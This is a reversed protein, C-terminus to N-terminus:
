HDANFGVSSDDYYMSHSNSLREYKAKWENVIECLSRSLSVSYELFQEPTMIAHFERMIKEIIDEQDTM